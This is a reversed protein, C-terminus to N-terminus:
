DCTTRINGFYDATSRCRTEGGYPNSWTSRYNGFYDRRISGFNGNGDSCRYNGFYDPRCTTQAKAPPPTAAMALAATALLANLVLRMHYRM